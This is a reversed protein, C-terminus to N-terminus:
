GIFSLSCTNASVNYPKNSQVLCYGKRPVDYYTTHNSINIEGKTVQIGNSSFCQSLSHIFVGLCLSNLM